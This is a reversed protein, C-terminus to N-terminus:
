GRHTVARIIIRGAEHPFFKIKSGPPTYCFFRYWCITQLPPRHVQSRIRSNNLRPANGEEHPPTASVDSALSWGTRAKESRSWKNIARGGRRKCPPSYARM